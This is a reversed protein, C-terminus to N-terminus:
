DSQDAIGSPEEAAQDSTAARSKSWEKKIWGYSDRAYDKLYDAAASKGSSFSKGIM